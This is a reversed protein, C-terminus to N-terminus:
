SWVRVYDIQTTAPLHTVSPKFANSQIGLAQTLNIFFPQDFPQPSVLPAAPHWTDQVCTTGDITITMTASTWELAYTHFDYVDPLRCTNNTDAPDPAAPLYHVFPIVRDPYLSYEEAIDIEGSKPWAGYRNADVPYLWLSSQLGQFISKPFAARVEFRGYTQSFTGLSMVSGSTYQTAYWGLPDKCWFPKSERRATLSLVGNGVSLNNPSDEFCEPGSHYGTVATETPTWKTQDLTSGDFEDDFTCPRAAGGPGTVVEGSCSAVDAPASHALGGRAPQASADAAAATLGFATVVVTLTVVIRRTHVSM